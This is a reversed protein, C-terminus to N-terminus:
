SAVAEVVAQNGFKDRRYSKIGLSSKSANVFKCWIRLLTVFPWSNKSSCVLGEDTNKLNNQKKSTMM